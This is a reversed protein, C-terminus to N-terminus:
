RSGIESSSAKRREGPLCLCKEDEKVCLSWQAAAPVEVVAVNVAPFRAQYQALLEALIDGLAQPEGAGEDFREDDEFGTLRGEM